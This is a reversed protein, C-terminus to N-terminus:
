EVTVGTKCWGFGTKSSGRDYLMSGQYGSGDYLSSAGIFLYGTGELGPIGETSILSDERIDGEPDKSNCELKTGFVMTDM